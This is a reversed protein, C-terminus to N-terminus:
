DAWDLVDVTVPVSFEAKIMACVACFDWADTQAAWAAAPYRDLSTVLALRGERWLLLVDFLLCGDRMWLKAQLCDEAPAPLLASWDPPDPPLGPRVFRRCPRKRLTQVYTEIDTDPRCARNVGAYWGSVQGAPWLQLEDVEPHAALLADGDLTGDARLYPTLPVAQGDQGVAVGGGEGTLAYLIRRPPRLHALVAGLRNWREPSLFEVRIQADIM